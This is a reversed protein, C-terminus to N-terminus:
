GNDEDGDIVSQITAAVEQRIGPRLTEGEDPIFPRRPLKSQGSHNNHGDAKAQQSAETTLVLKDSRSMVRISSALDGSLQLNPIPIGGQRKKIKAYDPDLKKFNRGTVSSRTDDLDQRVANVVVEKAAQVARKITDPKLGQKSIGSIDFPDFEYQVKKAM